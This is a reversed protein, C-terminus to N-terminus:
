VGEEYDTAAVGGIPFGYGEHGDPLTISYKYIGPLHAVNACQELTRDTKIKDLLGEDAFVVGPVRMGPKYKQPIRWRYRDIKELPVTAGHGRHKEGQNM